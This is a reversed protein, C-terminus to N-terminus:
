NEKRYEDTQNDSLVPVKNTLECYLTKAFYIIFICYVIAILMVITAKDITDVWGTIYRISSQFSHLNIIIPVFWKRKDRGSIFYVISLIDGAYFYREHMGPALYIFILAFLIAIGIYQSPNPRVKKFVLLIILTGIIGVCLLVMISRLSLILDAAVESNLAWFNIYGNYLSGTVGDTGYHILPNITQWFPKGALVAPLTFGFFTLPLLFFNFISFRKKTLYFLLLFPSYMIATMKISISIAYAFFGLSYKRRSFMVASLLLFATYISDSQGWYSGNFIVTPLIWIIGYTFSSWFNNEAEKRLEKVLIAAFIACLLDFFISLAKISIKLSFPLYTILKLALLYPQTYDRLINNGIGHEKLTKCWSIVISMDETHVPLGKLRALFGIVTICIIFLPVPNNTIFLWIAHDLWLTKKSNQSYTQKDIKPFYWPMKFVTMLLGWFIISLLVVILFIYIEIIRNQIIKGREASPLVYEYKSDPGYSYLDIIESFKENYVRAKGGWQNTKFIL